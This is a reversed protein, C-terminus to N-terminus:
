RKEERRVPKTGDPEGCKPGHRDAGAEGSRATIAARRGSRTVRRRPPKAAGAARGGTEKGASGGTLFLNLKRLAQAEIQRVRERTLGIKDGIEELTMPDRDELGFRMEIIRRERETLALDIAKALAERDYEALIGKSEEEAPLGAVMDAFEADSDAGGFRGTLASASIAKRVAALRHPPLKLERAIEGHAPERGLKQALRAHAKKWKSVIEVMYAPIRVSKVKNILARRITQKIWWSAYTSFKCGQDPSFRQVAKLLGINGEEILDLLSMGRDVYNKAVAVVLRLNSRIMRDRAEPDGRAVRAALEREEEPKLLPYRSIESLYIDVESDAIASVELTASKGATM